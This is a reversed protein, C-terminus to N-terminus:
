NTKRADVKTYTNKKIIIFVINFVKSKVGDLVGFVFTKNDLVIRIGKSNCVRVFKSLLHQVRPCEWLLHYITEEADECFTCLNTDM